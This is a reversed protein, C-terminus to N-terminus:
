RDQREKLAPWEALALFYLMCINVLPVIMLISLAPSFGAKKFIRWYPFVIFALGVVVVVLLIVVLETADFKPM